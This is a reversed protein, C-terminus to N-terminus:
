FTRPSACLFTCWLCPGETGDAPHKLTIRHINEVQAQGREVWLAEKSEVRCTWRPLPSKLFLKIKIFVVKEAREVQYFPVLHGGQRKAGYHSPRDLFKQEL